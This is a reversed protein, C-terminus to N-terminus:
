VAAAIALTEVAGAELAAGYHRLWSRVGDPTGTPFAGSAGVYEPERQHHGVDVAILGRPDVGTSILILRAAARAVVGNPGAFARIALLEAHIVAAFLIPSGVPNGAAAVVRDLVYSLATLSRVPRGLEDDGVLGRAALLHVRALVQRPAVPWRPALSDLAGAVRLAGQVGPDTVTGARVEELPFAYGSLAASAVASRLGVEAAVQGGKRRLAPHRLAEDIRERAAAVAEAVGPLELLDDAVFGVIIGGGAKADWGAAWSASLWRRQARWGM